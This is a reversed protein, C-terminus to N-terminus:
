EPACNNYKLETNTVKTFSIYRCPTGSMLISGDKKYVIYEIITGGSHRLNSFLINRKTRNTGGAVVNVSLIILNKDKFKNFVRARLISKLVGKSPSQIETILADALDNVQKIEERRKKVSKDDGTLTLLERRGHERLSVLKNTDNILNKLIKEDMVPHELPFYVSVNKNNPNARVASALQAAFARSTINVSAGKFSVDQKFLQLLNLAFGTIPGAGVSESQFDSNNEFKISSSTLKLEKYLLEIYNLRTRFSADILKDSFYSNVKEKDYIVLAKEGQLDDLLTASIDEALVKMSRYALVTPEFDVKDVETKGDLPTPLQPFLAGAEAKDAEAEAKRANAEAEKLKAEAERTSTASSQNDADESFAPLSISPIYTFILIFIYLNSWKIKIRKLTM